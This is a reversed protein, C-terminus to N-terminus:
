TLNTIYKYYNLLNNYYKIFIYNDLKLSILLIQIYIKGMFFFVFSYRLIIYFNAMMFLRKVKISRYKEKHIYQILKTLNNMLYM